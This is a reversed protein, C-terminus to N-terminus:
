VNLCGRREFDIIESVNLDHSENNEFHQFNVTFESVTIFRLCFTNEKKLLQMQLQLLTPIEM